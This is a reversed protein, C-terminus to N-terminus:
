FSAALIQWNSGDSQVTCYGYKTNIVLSTFGDLTQSSTTAITFPGTNENKLYYIRGTCATADPLTGTIASAKNAVWTAATADVSFSNTQVSLAPAVTAFQVNSTTDISQPTSLTVAGTSASAIVQHATGTISSVGSGSGGGTALYQFQLHGSGDTCLAYGSQGDADPFTYLGTSIQGNKRVEFKSVGGVQRRLVTSSGLSATNTVNADDLHFLAGANNWTQDQNMTPQSFTASQSGVSAFG